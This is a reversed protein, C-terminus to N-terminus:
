FSPDQMYGPTIPYRPVSAGGVYHAVIKKGNCIKRLGKKFYYYQDLSMEPCEKRNCYTSLFFILM